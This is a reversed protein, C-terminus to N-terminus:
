IYEAILTNVIEAALHPDQSRFHIELLRTNPINKVSLSGKIGDILSAEEVPSFQTPGTLANASSKGAQIGAFAPNKDLHLKNVVQLALSDSELVRTQTELAITPDYDEQAIDLPGEKFGAVTGTERHISVRGFADYIPIARMSSIAALTVMILIPAIVVSKRKLLISWYERIANQSRYQFDPELRYQRSVDITQLDLRGPSRDPKILNESDM